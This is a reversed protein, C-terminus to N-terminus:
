ASKSLGNRYPYLDGTGMLHRDVKCFYTRPNFEGPCMGTLQISGVWGAETTIDVLQSMMAELMDINRLIAEPNGKEPCYKKAQSNDCALSEMREWTKDRENVLLQKVVKCGLQLDQVTAKLKAVRDMDSGVTNGSATNDDSSGTVRIDSGAPATEVAAAKQKEAKVTAIFWDEKHNEQFYLGNKQSAQQEQSRSEPTNSPPQLTLKELFSLNLLPEKVAARAMLFEEHEEASLESPPPYRENFLSTCKLITHAISKEQQGTIFETYLEAVIYVDEEPFKLHAVM